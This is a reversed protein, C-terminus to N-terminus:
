NIIIVFLNRLQYPLNGADQAQEGFGFDTAAKTFYSMPDGTPYAQEMFRMFSFQATLYTWPNAKKIAEKLEKKKRDHYETVRDRLFFRETKLQPYYKIFFHLHILTLPHTKIFSSREDSIIADFQEDLFTNVGSIDLSPETYVIIPFLRFKSGLSKLHRIQNRLQYIGKNKEGAFKKETAFQDYLFQQLGQTDARDVVTGHIRTSKVEIVFVDKNNQMILIDPYQPDDKDTKITDYRHTFIQRVLQLTIYEEFFYKGIIGLYENYNNIGHNKKLSTVKYFHYILSIDTLNSFFDFDLVAVGESFRYFPQNILAFSEGSFSSGSAAAPDYIFPELVRELTADVICYRPQRDQEYGTYSSIITQLFVFYFNYPSVVSFAAAFEKLPAEGYREGVFRFFLFAKLANVGYMDAKKRAFEQQFLELKWLFDISLLNKTDARNYYAENIALLTDFLDKQLLAESEENISDQDDIPRYRAILKAMLNVIVQSSFVAAYKGEPTSRIKILREYISRHLKNFVLSFTDNDIQNPDGGCEFIIANIKSLMIILVDTPYKLLQGIPDVAAAKGYFQRYALVGFISFTPNKSGSSSNTNKM